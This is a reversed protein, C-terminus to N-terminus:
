VIGNRLFAASGSGEQVRVRAALIRGETQRYLEMERSSLLKELRIQVFLSSQNSSFVHDLTGMLGTPETSYILM